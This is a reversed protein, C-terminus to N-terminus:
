EPSLTRALPGREGPVGGDDRAKPGDPKEAAIWDLLIQFFGAVNEVIERVDETSLPRSTRPQWVERTRELLVTRGPGGYSNPRRSKNLAMEPSGKVSQGPGAPEVRPVPSEKIDAGGWSPNRAPAEVFRPRISSMRDM